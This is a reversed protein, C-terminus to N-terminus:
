PQPAAANVGTKQYIHIMINAAKVISKQPTLFLTKQWTTAEMQLESLKTCVCNFIEMNTSKCVKNSKCNKCYRNKYFNISDM